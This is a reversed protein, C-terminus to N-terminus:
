GAAARWRESTLPWVFVGRVIFWFLFMCVHRSEKDVVVNEDVPGGVGGLVRSGGYDLRTLM